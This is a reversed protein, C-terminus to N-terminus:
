DLQMQIPQPFEKVTMICNPCLQISLAESYHVTFRLAKSKALMLASLYRVTDQLDSLVAWMPYAPYKVRIIVIISRVTVQHVAFVAQMITQQLFIEATSANQSRVRIRVPFEASM